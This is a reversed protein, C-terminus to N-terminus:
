WIIILCIHLILNPEPAPHHWWRLRVRPAVDGPLRLLFPQAKRQEQGVVAAPTHEVGLVQDDFVLATGVDWRCVAVLV